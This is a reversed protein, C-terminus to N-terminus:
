KCEEKKAEEHRKPRSGPLRFSLASRSQGTQPPRPCVARDVSPIRPPNPTNETPVSHDTGPRGPSAVGGQRDPSKQPSRLQLNFRQIM